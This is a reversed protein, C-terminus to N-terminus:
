GKLVQRGTVESLVAPRDIVRRAGTTVSEAVFLDGVVKVVEDNSITGNQRLLSQQTDPLYKEM